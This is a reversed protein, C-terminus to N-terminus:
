AAVEQNTKTDVVDAVDTAALAGVDWAGPGSARLVQGTGTVLELGVVQAALGSARGGTGHTGTGIAGAISQEDIDPMNQLAQGLPDLLAGCRASLANQWQALRLAVVHVPDDLRAPVWLDLAPQRRQVPRPHLPLRQM